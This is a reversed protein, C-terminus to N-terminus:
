RSREVVLEDLDEVNPLRREASLEAVGTQVMNAETEQPVNRPVAHYNHTEVDIREDMESHDSEVQTTNRRKRQHLFIYVGVFMLVSGVVVAVTIGIASKPTLKNNDSSHDISGDTDGTPTSTSSDVMGPSLQLNSQSTTSSAVMGGGRMDVQDTRNTVYFQPSTFNNKGRVLGLSDYHSAVLGLPQSWNYM